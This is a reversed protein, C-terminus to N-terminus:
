FNTNLLDFIMSSVLIIVPGRFTVLKFDYLIVCDCLFPKLQKERIVYINETHRTKRTGHM